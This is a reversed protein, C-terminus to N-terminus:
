RDVDPVEKIRTYGSKWEEEDRALEVTYVDGPRLEDMELIAKLEFARSASVATHYEILKIGARLWTTKITIM